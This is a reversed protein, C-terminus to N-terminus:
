GAMKALVATISGSLSGKHFGFRYTRIWPRDGSSPPRWRVYGAEAMKKRSLKLLYKRERSKQDM